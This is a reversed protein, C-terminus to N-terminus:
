KARAPPARARGHGPSKADAGGGGSLKLRGPSFFPQVTCAPYLIIDTVKEHGLGPLLFGLNGCGRGPSESETVTEMKGIGSVSKWM